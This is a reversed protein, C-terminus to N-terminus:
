KTSFNGAASAVVLRREYRLARFFPGQVTKIVFVSIRFTQNSFAHDFTILGFLTAPFQRLPFLTVLHLRFRSKRNRRRRVKLMTLRIFGNRHVLHDEPLNEVMLITSSKPITHWKAVKLHAQM